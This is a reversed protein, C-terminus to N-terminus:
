NDVYPVDWIRLLIHDCTSAGWKSDISIGKYHSDRRECKRKRVELRKKRAKNRANQWRKMNKSRSSNNKARAMTLQNTIITLNYFLM